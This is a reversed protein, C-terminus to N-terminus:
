LKFTVQLSATNSQLKVIQQAAQRSTLEHAKSIATLTGSWYNQITGGLIGGGIAGLFVRLIILAVHVGPISLAVTLLVLSISLLVLPKTLIAKVSSWFEISKFMKLAAEHTLETKGALKSKVSEKIGIIQDGCPWRVTTPLWFPTMDVTFMLIGRQSYNKTIEHIRDCVFFLHLMKRNNPNQGASANM